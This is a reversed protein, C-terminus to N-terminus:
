PKGAPPRPSPRKPERARRRARLAQEEASDAAAYIARMTSDPGMYHERMWDRIVWRGDRRTFHVAYIPKGKRSVHRMALWRPWSTGSEVYDLKWAGARRDAGWGLDRASDLMAPRALRALASASRRETLDRIFSQFVAYPTPVIREDELDFGKERLTFLRERFLGPCGDCESFLTDSPEHLWAMLEPAGDGNVDEWNLQGAGAVDPGSGPFQLIEWYGGGAAMRMVLLQIAEGPAARDVIACLYPTGKRGVWWVRFSPDFGRRFYTGQHKLDEGIWWFLFGVAGASVHYPNRVMLVAFGPQEPDLRLETKLGLRALAPGIALAQTMNARGLIRFMEIAIRAVDEYADYNSGGVSDGVNSQFEALARASRVTISDTQPPFWPKVLPSSPASSAPSAHLALAALITTVIAARLGPSPPFAM